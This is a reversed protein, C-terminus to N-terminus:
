RPGFYADMMMKMKMMKMKMKMVMMMVVEVEPGFTRSQNKEFGIFLLVARM